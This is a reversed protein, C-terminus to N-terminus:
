IDNIELKKILNSFSISTVNGAYQYQLLDRLSAQSALERIKADSLFLAKVWKSELIFDGRDGDLFALFFAFAVINSSIKPQTRLNKVKGTIFGAQKWSSAINQAMSRLTKSSFKNPYNAEINQEVKEILVKDGLKTDAVVPISEELLYDNGIAYLLAILSKEENEAIKWFYKFAKFQNSQNDFGYLLKLFNTTKKIGDASKKGIVNFDLSKQYNDSEISYDMVKELEAFMITRSTHITKISKVIKRFINYNFAKRINFILFAFNYFFTCQKDKIGQLTQLTQLSNKNKSKRM